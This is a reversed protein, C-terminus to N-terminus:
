VGIMVVNDPLSAHGNTKWLEGTGAGAAVQTAGSKISGLIMPVFFEAGDCRYEAVLCLACEDATWFRMMSAHEYWGSQVMDIQGQACATTAGSWWRIIGLIQDAGMWDDELYMEYSPASTAAAVTMARPEGGLNPSDTGLGLDGAETLRMREALSGALSTHWALWVDESGATDDSVGAIVKAGDYIAPTTNEFQFYIGGAYAPTGGTNRLLLNADSSQTEQELIPPESSDYSVHLKGLPDNGGIHLRFDTWDWFLEDNDEALVNNGGFRGIFLVSGLTGSIRTEDPVLSGGEGTSSHVHRGDAGVCSLIHLDWDFPRWEPEEGAADMGLIEYADDPPLGSWLTPGVGDGYIMMGQTVTTPFTDPHGTSLLNHYGLYESLALLFPRQDTLYAWDVTTMGNPCYVAALPITQAPPNPVQGQRMSSPLTSAFVNGQTYQIVGSSADLSILVMRAQGAVGPAYTTMDQTEGGGYYYLANDYVYAGPQIDLHESIPDQVQVLLYIFQQTRVWVVDDGGYENNLEHQQHHRAMYGYSGAETLEVFDIDLIQLTDPKELSYGAIVPLNNRPTVRTCLCREVRGRGSSRIYVYNPASEVIVNGAGDGMYAKFRTPKTEKQEFRGQLKNREQIVRARLSGM